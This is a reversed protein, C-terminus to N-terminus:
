LIDHRKITPYGYFPPSVTSCHLTLHYLEYFVSEDPLTLLFKRAHSLQTLLEERKSGPPLIVRYQKGDITDKAEEVLIVCGCKELMPMTYKHYYPLIIQIMDAERGM